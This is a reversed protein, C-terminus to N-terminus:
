DTIRHILNHNLLISVYSIMPLNFSASMRGEHICTEQPGIYGFVEKKWLDATQWISTNEEGYTEAIVFDIKHGLKTLKRSNVEELAMTLAGSIQKGPIQSLIRYNFSDVWV